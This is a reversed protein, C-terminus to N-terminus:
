AGDEEVDEDMGGDDNIPNEDSFEVMNVEMEEEEAEMMLMEDYEEGSLVQFDGALPGLGMDLM